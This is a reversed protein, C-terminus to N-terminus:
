KFVEVVLRFFGAICAGGILPLRYFWHIMSQAKNPYKIQESPRKFGSLIGHIVLMHVIPGVIIIDRLYLEKTFNTYKVHHADGFILPLPSVRWICALVKSFSAIGRWKNSKYYDSM